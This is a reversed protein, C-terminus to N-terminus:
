LKSVEPKNPMLNEPVFGKTFEKQKEQKEAWEGPTMPSMDMYNIIYVYHGTKPSISFIMSNIKRRDSVTELFSNAQKELVETDSDELIKVQHKVKAPIQMPQPKQQNM